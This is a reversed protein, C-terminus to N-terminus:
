KNYQIEECLYNGLGKIHDTVCSLNALRRAIESVIVEDTLCTAVIQQEETKMAKTQQILTQKERDTMTVETYFHSNGTVGTKFSRGYLYCHCSMM